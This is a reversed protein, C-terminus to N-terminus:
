KKFRKCLLLTMGNIIIRQIVNEPILMSGNEIKHLERLSVGLMRACEDRNIHMQRRAGRIYKAFYKVDVLVVRM